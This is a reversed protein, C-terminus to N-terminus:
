EKVIKVYSVSKLFSRAEKVPLKEANEKNSTWGTKFGSWFLGSRKHCIYVHGNASSNKQSHLNQTQMDVM